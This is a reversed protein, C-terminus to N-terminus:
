AGEEEEEEILSGTVGPSSAAVVDTLILGEAEGATTIPGAVVTAHYKTERWPEM